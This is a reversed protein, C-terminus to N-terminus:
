TVLDYTVTANTGTGGNTPVDQRFRIYRRVEPPLPVKRIVAVSGTSAVGVLQVQVLPNTNAFTANDASDQLTILNTISTNTHDSLAPINVRAFTLRWKNSPEKGGSLPSPQINLDIGITTNNAAANPLAKTVRLLADLPM